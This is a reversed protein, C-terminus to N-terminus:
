KLGASNLANDWSGFYKYFTTRGPGDHGPQDFYRAPPRKGYKHAYARLAAILELKSKSYLKTAQQMTLTKEGIHKRFTNLTGHRAKVTQWLKIDHKKFDGDMPIRGVIRKVVDYRAMIQMDCLGMRNKVQISTNPKRRAIRRRMGHRFARPKFRGDKFAKRGIRSRFESYRRGCLATGLSLGYEIKYDESTTKHTSAVHRGLHEFYKGCIHCQVKEEVDDYMIVGQYGHGRPVEMFPEQAKYLPRIM